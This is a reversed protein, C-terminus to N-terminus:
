VCRHKVLNNNNERMRVYQYTCHSFPPSVLCLIFPLSNSMQSSKSYFKHLLFLLVSTIAQQRLRATAAAYSGVCHCILASSAMTESNKKKM